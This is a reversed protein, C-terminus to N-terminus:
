ASSLLQREKPPPLGSSDYLVQFAADFLSLMTEPAPLERKKEAPVPPDTIKDSKLGSLSAQLELARIGALISKTEGRQIAPRCALLLQDSRHLLL